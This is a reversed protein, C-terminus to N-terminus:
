PRGLHGHAQSLHILTSIVPALLSALLSCSKKAFMHNGDYSTRAAMMVEDVIMM